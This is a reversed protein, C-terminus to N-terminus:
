FEIFYRNKSAFIETLEDDLSETIYERTISQGQDNFVPNNEQDLCLIVIHHQGEKQPRSNLSIMVRKINSNKYHMEISYASIWERTMVPIKQPSTGLLRDILASFSDKKFALTVLYVIGIAGICILLFALWWSIGLAKAIELVFSSIPEISLSILLIAM